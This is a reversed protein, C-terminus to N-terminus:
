GIIPVDRNDMSVCCRLHMTLQWITAIYRCVCGRVCARVCVCICVFQILWAPRHSTCVLFQKVTNQTHLDCLLREVMSNM